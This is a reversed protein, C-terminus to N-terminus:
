TTLNISIWELWMKELASGILWLNENSNISNLWFQTKFFIRLESWSLNAEAGRIWMTLWWKAWLSKLNEILKEKDFNNNSKHENKEEIKKPTKTIQTAWEDWFIDFVDDHSLEEKKALEGETGRMQPPLIEIKPKEVEKKEIPKNVINNNTTNILNGLNSDIIKLIWITFTINEDLTNKTESYSKNLQELINFLQSFDKNESLKVLITDKLFFILDKFFLKLNKGKQNLEELDDIVTKDKNILKEVFNEIIDDNVIWLNEIVNEFIIEDNSILQEFLSIANRLWWNSNKIIYNLSKEDIKINENLAIYNLRDKVDINSISKFDYRQCRSLITEPVKHTETTALIFKVFEPPEELIKLLANFAWKSLMHVEDIIYIKYKTQTPRFQAKEIIERINDVWTYSAADIEIIDVLREELFNKCIDCELCPNWDLLNTCNLTKAFIRATSTKGTWRPWCFLYAWVTKNNKIANRLTEKVFKQWVLSKFDVPRYKLYLSM